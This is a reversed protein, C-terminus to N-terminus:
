QTELIAQAAAAVVFPHYNEWTPPLNDEAWLIVGPDEGSGGCILHALYYLGVENADEATDVPRFRNLFVEALEPESITLKGFRSSWLVRHAELLPDDGGAILDPAGGQLVDRVARSEEDAYDGNRPAYEWDSAEGKFHCCLAMWQPDAFEPDAAAVHQEEGSLYAVWAFEVRAKDGAIGIPIESWDVWDLLDAALTM